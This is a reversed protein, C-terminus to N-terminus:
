EDVRMRWHYSSGLKELRTLIQERCGLWVAGPVSIRIMVSGLDSPEAEAEDAVEGIASYESSLIRHIEEPDWGLKDLEIHEEALAELESKLMELDWGANLALKNDAIVLARRQAETLHDFVIVPVESLGLKRAALLRAHGAIIVGDASVLIPNTWGFEVISAAIQAVQEETHTRPNRAYPILREVPWREIQIDLKV